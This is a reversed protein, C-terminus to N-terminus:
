REQNKFMRIFDISRNDMLSNLSDDLINKSSMYSSSNPTIYLKRGDNVSTPALFLMPIEAKLEAEKYDIIRKDLIGELIKILNKNLLMDGTKQIVIDAM